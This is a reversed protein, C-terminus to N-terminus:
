LAAPIAFADPPRSGESRQRLVSQAQRALTAQASLALNLHIRAQARTAAAMAEPEAGDREHKLAPREKWALFEKLTMPNRLALCM